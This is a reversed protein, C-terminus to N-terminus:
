NYGTGGCSRCDEFRNYPTRMAGNCRTCPFAWLEQNMDRGTGVCKFCTEMGMVQNKGMGNCSNCKRPM